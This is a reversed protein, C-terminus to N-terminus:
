EETMWPELDQLIEEETGEEFELYDMLALLGDSM